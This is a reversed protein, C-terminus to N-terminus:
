ENNKKMRREKLRREPYYATYYFNRRDKGTRRNKM